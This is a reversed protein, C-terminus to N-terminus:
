FADAVYRGVLNEGSLGLLEFASQNAAIIRLKADMVLMATSADQATIEYASRVLSRRQWLRLYVFGGVACLLVIILILTRTLPDVLGSM